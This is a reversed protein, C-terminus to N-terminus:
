PGEVRAFHAVRLTAGPFQDMAILMLPGTALDRDSTTLPITGCPTDRRVVSEVGNAVILVAWIDTLRPGHEKALFLREADKM